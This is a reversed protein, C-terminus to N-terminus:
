FTFVAVAWIVFELSQFQLGCASPTRTKVVDVGPGREKYRALPTLQMIILILNCLDTKETGCLLNPLVVM